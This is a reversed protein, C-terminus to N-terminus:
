RELSSFDPEAFQVAPRGEIWEHVHKWCVVLEGKRSLKFPIGEARLWEEQGAQRACDTLQRLAERSLFGATSM